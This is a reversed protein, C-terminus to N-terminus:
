VLILYFWTMHDKQQDIKELISNKFFFKKLTWIFVDLSFLLLLEACKTTFYNEEQFSSENRFKEVFIM